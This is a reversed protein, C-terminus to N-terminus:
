NSLIKVVGHGYRGVPMSPGSLWTNSPFSSLDSYYLASLGVPPDAPNTRGTSTGGFNYFVSDCILGDGYGVADPMSQAATTWSGTFPYKLYQVAGTPSYATVNTSGYFPYNGTAGTMSSNGGIILLYSVGAETTFVDAAFGVKASTLVTETPGSLSDSGTTLPIYGNHYTLLTAAASRGGLSYVTGGFCYSSLNSYAGGPVTRTTWLDGTIDYRYTSNAAAWGATANTYSGNLVYIYGDTAVARINARGGDMADGSSWTDTAIDYIQTITQVVGTSDFGGVVYIKGQYGAVGAFSVPTPLTTVAPYWTKTVPDFADIQPVVTSCGNGSLGGVVWLSRLRIELETSSGVPSMLLDGGCSCLAATLAFALAVKRAKM